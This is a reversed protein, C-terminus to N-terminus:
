AFLEEQVEFLGESAGPPAFSVRRLRTKEVLAAFTSPSLGEPLASESISLGPGLRPSCLGSLLPRNADDFFPAVVPLVGEGGRPRKLAASAQDDRAARAAADVAAHFRLGTERDLVGCLRPRLALGSREEGGLFEAFNLIRAATEALKSRAAVGRRALLDLALPLGWLELDVEQGDADVLVEAPGGFLVVAGHVGFPAGRRQRWLAEHFADTLLSLPARLREL